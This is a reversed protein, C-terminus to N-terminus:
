ESPDKKIEAKCLPVMCCKAYKYKHYQKNAHHWKWYVGMIVDEVSEYFIDPRVAATDVWAHDFRTKIFNAFNYTAVINNFYVTFWEKKGDCKACYRVYFFKDTNVNEKIVDGDFDRLRHYNSM